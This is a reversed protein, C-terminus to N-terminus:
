KKANKKNEKEEKKREEIQKAVLVATELANLLDEGLKQRGGITCAIEPQTVIIKSKDLDYSVCSLADIAIIRRQEDSLEDFVPQCIIVVISDSCKGLTEEIPSSKKVKIVQKQKDTALVKITMYSDLFSEKALELILDKDEDSAEFIKAMEIINLENKNLSPM